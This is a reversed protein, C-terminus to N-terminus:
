ELFADRYPLGRLADICLGGDAEDTREGVLLPFMRDNEHGSRGMAQGQPIFPFNGLSAPKAECNSTVGDRFTNIVAARRPGGTSNSDSGHLMLPHHFCAFGRKIEIQEALDVAQQQDKSLVAKVADLSPQVDIPIPPLLGWQHSGPVYRLCGNTVTVDDLAIWCTLHAMPATWDWYSFDQHYGFWSVSKAPKCFIQDHLFRLPGGLLQYAAVRFKPSWCLDHFDFSIRWAGSAVFPHYAYWLHKGPHEPVLLADVEAALADCEAESLVPVGAIYGRVRFDNVQSESLAFEKWANTSITVPELRTSLGPGRFRSLDTGDGSRLFPRGLEWRAQGRRLLGRMSTRTM